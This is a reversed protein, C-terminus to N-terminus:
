NCSVPCYQVSSLYDTALCRVISSVPCTTLQLVGSLVPCTTLQLVGSLVTCTTLLRVGSVVSCTTLLRDEAARVGSVDAGVEACHQRGAASQPRWRAADAASRLAVRGSGYTHRVPCRVHQSDSVLPGPPEM